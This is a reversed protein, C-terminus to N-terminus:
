LQFLTQRGLVHGGWLEDLAVDLLYPQKAFPLTFTKDSKHWSPLLFKTPLLPSSPSTLVHPAQTLSGLCSHLLAVHSFHGWYWFVFGNCQAGHGLVLLLWM